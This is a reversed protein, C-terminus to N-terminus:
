PGRECEVRYGGGDGDVNIVIDGREDTRYVRCGLRHLFGLTLSSPHGYPNDAGVSIVAVKPRLFCFFDSGTEAYGGHHPVKLLDCSASGAPVARMLNEQGAEEVDGAMVAEMGPLSVELVLSRDNLAMGGGELPPALARLKLEGLQLVMGEYMPRMPVGLEEARAFFACDAEEEDLPPHVILGVGCVDLAAGLGGVHDAEPHSVAVVDLYRIDRGRLEEELRWEDKGGDVLVTAGSEAQVLASDGQGVDFFTIRAGGGAAGLPLSFHLGNVVSLAVLAAMLVRGWRRYKGAALLAAFLAPYYLLMWAPNFPFLRLMSWRQGAVLGAVLLVWRALACAILMLFRALPMWLWSLLTGLLSAGLLLPLFPLVLINSIPALLSFEGFSLLLVPAVALQAALTTALLGAMRSRGARTFGRLPRFLLAVGLAAAFSLRFSTSIALNSDQFFLILMAAGMASLSDYDRGLFLSVGAAVALLSARQVPVSLGTALAYVLLLPLALLFAGRRSFSVRRLAWLLGAVLLGVHLGSAACVHILGSARLHLLDRSGLHRYDGLVIGKVLAAEGEPLSAAAECIRGRFALALRLLPSARAWERKVREAWLTGSIGGSTTDFVRLFGQAEVVDGWRLASFGEDRCHLLYREGSRALSGEGAETVRLVLAEGSSSGRNGVEIRGRLSVHGSRGRRGDLRSHDRYGALVGVYALLLALLLCCLVKVELRALAAIALVAIAPLIMWAFSVKGGNGAAGGLVLAAALLLLRARHIVDGPM